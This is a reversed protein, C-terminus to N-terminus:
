LEVDASLFYHDSPYFGDRHDKIITSAMPKIAGKCFVFDIKGGKLKGREYHTGEFAHATYGPDKEGHIAAYSDTWGHQKVAAYVDSTMKSNFDGVLIQPFHDQYQDSEQLVLRTQGIKAEDSVHDLHLNIVRFEKGSRKDKLRVWNAHRARATGWSKSAAVLPTESLWYTGGATLDYRTADFLIPNKAVWHYGEPHADMYPGDFGFLCFKPFAKEFDGAQVKIVEQLCIISGSYKKIVDFCLDKRQPWGVGKAEDDPLAVRINCSLVRHVSANREEPRGESWRPFFPLLTSAGLGKLFARRTGSTEPKSLM